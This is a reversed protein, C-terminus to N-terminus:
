NIILFHTQTIKLKEFFFIIAIIEHNFYLMGARISKSAISNYSEASKVVRREVHKLLWGGIDEISDMLKKQETFSHSVVNSYELDPDELAAM